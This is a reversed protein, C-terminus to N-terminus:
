DILIFLFGISAMNRFGPFHFHSLLLFFSSPEVFGRCGKLYMHGPDMLTRKLGATEYRLSFDLFFSKTTLPLCADWGGVTGEIWDIFSFFDSLLYLVYFILSGKYTINPDSPTHESNLCTFHYLLDM